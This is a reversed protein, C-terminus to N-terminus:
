GAETLEQVMQRLYEAGHGFEESLRTFRIYRDKELPIHFSRLARLLLRYGLDPDVMTAVEHVAQPSIDVQELRPTLERIERVVSDTLDSRIPTDAPHYAPAVEALHARCEAAILLLWDRGDLGLAQPRITGGTAARWLTSLIDASLTSGVLRNADELLNAACSGPAQLVDDAAVARRLETRIPVDGTYGEFYWALGSLGFDMTTDRRTTDIGPWQVVLGEQVMPAPYRLEHALAVFRAYQERSIAVQHVKLVRLFLRFGLEADCREVIAALGELLGESTPCGAAVEDRLAHAIEASCARMALLAARSLDAEETQRRPWHKSSHDEARRRAPHAAALQQLWGRAGTVSDSLGSRGHTACRWVTRLVDDPVDSDLLCAVDVGLEVAGEGECVAAVRAALDMFRAHSVPLPEAALLEALLSLGFDGEHYWVYVQAQRAM